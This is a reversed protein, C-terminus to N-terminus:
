RVRLATSVPVWVERSCVPCAAGAGPAAPPRLRRVGRRGTVRLAGLTMLYTLVCRLAVELLFTPPTDASFLMQHWDFPQIPVAAFMLPPALHFSNHTM